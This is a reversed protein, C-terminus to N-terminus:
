NTDNIDTTLRLQLRGVLDRNIVLRRVTQGLDYLVVSLEDVTCGFLGHAAVWDFWAGLGDNRVLGLHASQWVTEHISKAM